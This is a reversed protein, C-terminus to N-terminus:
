VYTVASKLQMLIKRKAYPIAYTRGYRLFAPIKCMLRLQYPLDEAFCLETLLVSFEFALSIRQIYNIKLQVERPLQQLAERCLESLAAFSPSSCASLIRVRLLWLPLSHLHVATASTAVALAEQTLGLCQLTHVQQRPLSPPYPCHFVLCACSM